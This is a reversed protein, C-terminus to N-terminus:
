DQAASGTGAIPDPDVVLVAWDLGEHSLTESFPIGAAIAEAYPILTFPRPFEMTEAYALFARLQNVANYDNKM